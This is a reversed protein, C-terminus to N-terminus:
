RTAGPAQNHTPYLLSASDARTRAPNGSVHGGETHAAAIRALAKVLTPLNGAGSRYLEGNLKVRDASGPAGVYDDLLKAVNIRMPEFNDGGTEPDAKIEAQWDANTKVWAQMQAEGAATSAAAMQSGIRTVIAQAQEQTLGLKAAEDKFDGLTPSAKDVGTPLEFDTYEVPKVEAPKEGEKPPDTRTEGGRGDKDPGAKPTDTLVSAQAITEATVASAAPAATGQSVTSDAVAAAPVAAVAPAAAAPASTSESM